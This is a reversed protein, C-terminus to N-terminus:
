WLYRAHPKLDGVEQRLDGANGFYTSRGFYNTWDATAPTIEGDVVPSTCVLAHEVLPSRVTSPCNLVPKCGNVVPQRPLSSIGDSRWRSLDNSYPSADLYPAVMLEWGWGHYVGDVSM